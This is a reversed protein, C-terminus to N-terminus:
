YTTPTCIIPAVTMCVYTQTRDKHTCSAHQGRHQLEESDKDLLGDSPDGKFHEKLDPLALM